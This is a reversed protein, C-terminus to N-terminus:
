GSADWEFWDAHPDNRFIGTELVRAYETPAALLEEFNIDVGQQAALAPGDNGSFAEWDAPGTVEHMPPSSAKVSLVYQAVKNLARTVLEFPGLEERNSKWQSLAEGLWLNLNLDATAVSLDPTSLISYFITFFSVFPYYSIFEMTWHLHHPFSTSIVKMLNVSARAAEVSRIPIIGSNSLSIAKDARYLLTM